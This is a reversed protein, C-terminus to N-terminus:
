TLCWFCHSMFEVYICVTLVDAMFIVSLIVWVARWINGVLLSWIGPVGSFLMVCRALFHVLWCLFENLVQTSGQRNPKGVANKTRRRLVKKENRGRFCLAHRAKVRLFIRGAHLLEAWSSSRFSLKNTFLIKLAFGFCFSFWVSTIHSWWIYVYVHIYM